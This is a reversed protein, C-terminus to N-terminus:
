SDCPRTPLHASLSFELCQNIKVRLVEEKRKQKQGLRRELLIDASLNTVSTEKEIGGFVRIFGGIVINRGRAIRSRAGVQLRPRLGRSALCYGGLLGTQRYQHVWHAPLAKLGYNVLSRFSPLREGIM